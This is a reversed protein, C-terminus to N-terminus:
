EDGTIGGQKAFIMDVLEANTMASQQNVPPAHGKPCFLGQWGHGISQSIIANPDNGQNFWAELNKIQLRITAEAMTLKRSKRYDIWEKWASPKICEPLQIELPDFRAPKGQTKKEKKTEKNMIGREPILSDPILSDPILSDSREPVKNECDQLPTKVTLYGNDLAPAPKCPYRKSKETHHPSQHKEFNIVQIYLAGDVEYRDIFGSRELVTLYGNVDLSERYPFLEAKIRLPRDELRGERDALCWLGLFTMGIIPDLQGLIENTFFSPKINRARAM